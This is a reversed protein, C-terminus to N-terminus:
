RPMLGRDPNLNRSKWSLLTLQLKLGQSQSQGQGQSQSQSQSQNQSQSQSLHSPRSQRPMLGRDPNLNRSKWSLLTL